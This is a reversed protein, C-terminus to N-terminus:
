RTDHQNNYAKGIPKVKRVKGSNRGDGVSNVEEVVKVAGIVAEAVEAM